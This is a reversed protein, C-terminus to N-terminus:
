MRLRIRHHSLESTFWGFNRSAGRRSCTLPDSRRRNPTPHDTNRRDLCRKAHLCASDLCGYGSPRKGSQSGANKIPYEVPLATTDQIGKEAAARRRNRSDPCLFLCHIPISFLPRNRAPQPVCRSPVAAVKEVTFSSIFAHRNGFQDFNQFRQVTVDTNDNCRGQIFAVSQRIKIYSNWQRCPKHHPRRMWEKYM